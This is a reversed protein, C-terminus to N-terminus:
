TAEEMWTSLPHTKENLDEEFVEYANSKPENEIDYDKLHNFFGKLKKHSLIFDKKAQEVM